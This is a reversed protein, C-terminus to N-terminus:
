GLEVGEYYLSRMAVIKLYEEPLVPKGGEYPFAYPLFIEVDADLINLRITLGFRLDLDKLAYGESVKKLM